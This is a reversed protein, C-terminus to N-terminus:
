TLIFNCDNFYFYIMFNQKELKHNTNKIMFSGSPISKFKMGISNTYDGALLVTSAILTSLIIKKM